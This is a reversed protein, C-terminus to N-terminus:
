SEHKKRWSVNKFVLFLSKIKYKNVKNPLFDKIEDVRNNTDFIIAFLLYFINSLIFFLSLIYMSTYESYIFKYFCVIYGLVNLFLLILHSSLLKLNTKTFKKDVKKNKPSVEFPIKKIGFLEKLVEKSIIPALITEYIKNWTSSHKRESCIDILFRRILYTPIWLALFVNLNCDIIIINFLVFLLPAILYILRKIGFFWYMLCSLYELKQRLSLGKNFLFKSGKLIQIGGRAWRTRQKIFGDFDIVSNGYILTKDIAIGKYGKAELKLSTAIDETISNTSFYNADILAQRSIIANTGCFITSNLSNKKLNIYSYFYDQEFPIDNELNFRYQFIDPTTFSQPLQVFGVKEESFFYPIAELLFNPEPAMDADLTAIYPSSTCSIAHNYNGAKFHNRSKRSLYNVNYKKALKRINSRNGDDCIYIHILNKDPYNLELCKSITNSLIEESENYTAIFIDIDPFSNKDLEKKNFVKNKPILINSFYVYTDFADLLEVLLVFLSCIFFFIGLGISLTFFIRYIIYITFILISFIYIFRKFNEKKM